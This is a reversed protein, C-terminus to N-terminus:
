GVADIRQAAVTACQYEVPANEHTLRGLDTKRGAVSQHVADQNFFLPMVNECQLISNRGQAGHIAGLAFIATAIQESHQPRRVKGM